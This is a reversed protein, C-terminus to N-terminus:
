FLYVLTFLEFRFKVICNHKDSCFNMSWVMNCWGWIRATVRWSYLFPYLIVRYWFTHIVKHNTLDTHQTTSDNECMKNNLAPLKITDFYINCFPVSLTLMSAIGGGIHSTTTCEGILFPFLYQLRNYIYLYHYKLQFIVAIMRWGWRRALSFLM